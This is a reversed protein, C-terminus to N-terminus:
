VSINGIVVIEEEDIQLTFYSHIKKMIVMGDTTIDVYECTGSVDSLDLHQKSGTVDVVLYSVDEEVLDSVSHEDTVSLIEIDSDPVYESSDQETDSEDSSTVKLSM